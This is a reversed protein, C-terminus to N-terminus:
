TKGREKDNEARENGKDLLFYGISSLFHCRIPTSLSLIIALSINNIGFVYLKDENEVGAEPDKLTREDIIYSFHSLNTSTLFIIKNATEIQATSKREM